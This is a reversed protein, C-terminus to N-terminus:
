SDLGALKKDAIQLVKKLRSRLVAGETSPSTLMERYTAYVREITACYMIPYTGKDRKRFDFMLLESALNQINCGYEAYLGILIMAASSRNFDPDNVGYVDDRINGKWWDKYVEEIATEIALERADSYYSAWPEPLNM